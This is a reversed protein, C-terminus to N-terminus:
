WPNADPDLYEAPPCPLTVGKRTRESQYRNRETNASEKLDDCMGHITKILYSLARYRWDGQKSSALKELAFRAGKQEPSEPPGLRADLTNELWNRGDPQRWARQIAGECEELKDRGIAATETVLAPMDPFHAEWFLCLWAVGSFQSTDAAAPSAQAEGPADERPKRGRKKPTPGTPDDGGEDGDAPRAAKDPKGAVITKGDGYPPELIICLKETAGSPMSLLRVWPAPPILGPNVHSLSQCQFFKVLYLYRHEIGNSDPIVYPAVEGWEILSEIYEDIVSVTIDEDTPFIYRNFKRPSYELCGTSEAFYYMALLLLNARSSREYYGDSQWFEKRVVRNYMARGM